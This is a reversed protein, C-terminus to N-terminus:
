IATAYDKFKDLRVRYMKTKSGFDGGTVEDFYLGNNLLEKLYSTRIIYLDFNDIGDMVAYAYITAQTTAIGSPKGRAEYEIVINGSHRAYYDSKIEVYEKTGNISCEFDYGKGNSFTIFECNKIRHVIKRAVLIEIKTADELDKKFDYHM